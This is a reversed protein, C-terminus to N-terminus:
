AESHDGALADAAFRQLGENTSVWLSSDQASLIQDVQGEVRPAFFKQGTEDVHQLNRAGAPGPGVGVVWLTHDRSEAIRAPGFVHVGTATFGTEDKSRRYLEENQIVWLTDNSDIFLKSIDGSAQVPDEVQHWIDDSGLRVLHRENLVACLAGNSDEQAYFLSFLGEGQVRDYIRVVGQHIRIAPGHFPFVWLDGAKSVFLFGLAGGPLPPSGPKQHFTDFNVGDFTFLGAYSNIWLIGDPTQALAFIGQPAGDRGTWSTHGNALHDSGPCLCSAGAGVMVAPSRGSTAALL